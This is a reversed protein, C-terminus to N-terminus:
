KKLARVKKEGIRPVNHQFSFLAVMRQEVQIPCPFLQLTERSWCNSFRTRQPITVCCSNWIKLTRRPIHGFHDLTISLDILRTPFM